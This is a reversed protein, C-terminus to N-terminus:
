IVVSGDSFRGPSVLPASSEAVFAQAAKRAGALTGDVGFREPNRISTHVWGRGPAKTGYNLSWSGRSWSIEHEYAGDFGEYKDAWFWGVAAPNSREQLKTAMAIGERCAWGAEVVM